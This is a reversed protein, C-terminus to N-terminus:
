QVAASRQPRAAIRQIQAQSLEWTHPPLPVFRVRDLLAQKDESPEISWLLFRRLAAATREDPQRTSVVAYEYNVLPYAIPGPAFILSLREDTPTRAALGAAGAIITERTPLVFNGDANKLAVTSLPGLDSSIGVYGISFPTSQLAHVMGLNGPVDLTGAVKPWDPSTAYGTQSDWSPTSFSLFQTFIFSDGSGDSRRVPVIAHHPLPIGPNLAAIAAADWQRISGAYIGALTPGDLQLPKALGPLNVAVSQASIAMAIDVFAPNDSAQADSLTADSAGIIVQGALAQQMGIGSGTGATSVHVGPHHAAYGAAWLDFLPHMLTSGTETVILDAGRATSTLLLLAAATAAVRTRPLRARM